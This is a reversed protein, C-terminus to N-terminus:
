RCTDGAKPLEDRVSSLCTGWPRLWHSPLTCSIGHPVKPLTCYPLKRRSSVSLQAVPLFDSSTIHDLPVPFFTGGVLAPLKLSLWHPQSHPSKSAYQQLHHACVHSEASRPNDPHCFTFLHQQHLSHTIISPSPRSGAFIGTFMRSSSFFWYFTVAFAVPLLEPLLSHDVIDLASLGLFPLVSFDPDNPVQALKYSYLM